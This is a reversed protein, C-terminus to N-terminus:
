AHLPYFLIPAGPSADEPTRADGGGEGEKKQFTRFLRRFPSSLFRISDLRDGAAMGMGCNSGGSGFSSFSYQVM